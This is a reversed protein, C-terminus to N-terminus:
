ATSIEGNMQTKTNKNEGFWWWWQLPCLEDQSNRVAKILKTTEQVSFVLCFCLSICGFTLLKFSLPAVAVTRGLVDLCLDAVQIKLKSRSVTTSLLPIILLTSFSLDILASLFAIPLTKVPRWRCVFPRGYESATEYSHSAASCFIQPLVPCCTYMNSNRHLAM